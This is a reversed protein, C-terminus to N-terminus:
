VSVSMVSMRCPKKAGSGGVELACALYEDPAFAPTGCGFGTPMVVIM